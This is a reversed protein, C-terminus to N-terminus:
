SIVLGSGKRRDRGENGMLYERQRERPGKAERGRSDRGDPIGATAGETCPRRDGVNCGHSVRRTGNRTRRGSTAVRGNVREGEKRESGSGM